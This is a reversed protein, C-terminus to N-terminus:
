SPQNPAQQKTQAAQVEAPNAIAVPHGPADIPATRSGRVFWSVGAATLAASEASLLIPVTDVVRPPLLNAALALALFTLIIGACIRYTMRAVGSASESSAFRVAILASAVYFATLFVLHFDGVMLTAQSSPGSHIPPFFALGLCCVGALNAALDLVDDSKYSILLWGLVCFAGVSINRMPSYYYSSLTTLPHGGVIQAGLILVAPLLMALIGIEQATLRADSDAAQGAPNQDQGRGASRRGRVSQSATSRIRGLQSPFDFSLARLLAITGITFIVYSAIRYQSLESGVAIVLAGSGGWIRIQRNKREDKADRAM